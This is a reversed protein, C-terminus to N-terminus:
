LEYVIEQIRPLIMPKGYSGFMTCKYNMVAAITNTPPLVRISQETLTHTQATVNVLMVLHGMMGVINVTGTIRVDHSEPVRTLRDNFRHVKPVGSLEAAGIIIDELVAYGRYAPPVIYRSDNSRILVSQPIEFKGTLHRLLVVPLLIVIGSHLSLRFQLCLNVTPRKRFIQALIKSKGQQLPLSTTHCFLPYPKDGIDM